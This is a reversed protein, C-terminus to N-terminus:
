KNYAYHMFYIQRCVQIRRTYLTFLLYKDIYNGLYSM